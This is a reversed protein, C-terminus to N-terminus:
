AFHATGWCGLGVAHFEKRKVLIWLANKKAPESNYISVPTPLSPLWIHVWIRLVDGSLASLALMQLGCLEPLPKPLGILM